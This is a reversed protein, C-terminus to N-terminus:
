EVTDTSERQGVVFLEGNKRVNENEDIDTHYLAIARM